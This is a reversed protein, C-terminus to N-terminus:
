TTRVGGNMFAMYVRGRKRRPEGPESARHLLVDPKASAASLQRRTASNETAQM